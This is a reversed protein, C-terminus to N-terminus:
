QTPDWLAVDITSSDEGLAAGAATGGYISAQPRDLKVLIVFQPNYAPIFGAM